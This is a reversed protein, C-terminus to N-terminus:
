ALGVRKRVAWELGLCGVVFAYLYWSSWLRVEVTRPARHRVANLRAPLDKLGDLTRFDGGTPATLRRLLEEDPTLNAMEAEFNEAVHLPYEAQGGGPESGVADPSRVRLRYEGPELGGVTGEYRGSDAAAGGGGGAVGGVPGLAQTKVVADGQLVDVALMAPYAGDAPLENLRARVRAQDGPTIVVPDADLSVGAETTAYPEDAAARVLQRFFREQDHEGGKARWRWTEDLGLFFVSGRGLRHRTLVPTGTSSEVLVPEAIEKREPMSLYRFVPPLTMWRQAVDPGSATPEEAMTLLDALSQGAGSALGAPGPLATGPMVRFAPEEGPWVRWVPGAGARVASRKWPLFEALWDGTYERPLHARGAMLIVSGGRQAVMQRLAEWQQPSLGGAPADCLIVVDLAALDTASVGLKAGPADLLVSKANIWNTRGLADRLYRYDWTPAGGVLLVEFRDTLVKVYRTASNNDATVEGDVPTLSVTVRQPGPDRMIMQFRVTGTGPRDKNPSVAAEYTQEGITVTVEPAKAGKPLAAATWRVDATVTLTEGVFVSAPVSVRQVALDRVPAGPGGPAPSVAFVPAGTGGVLASSVAAEAGVQQGDTFVVVAQVGQHRLRDLVERLGGTLDSRAGDPAVLLRRVNPGPKAGDAAGRLPVERVDPGIAFGYVPVGAPVHALLGTGPGVVAEEVLDMRNLKSLEDCARRVAENTRYLADDSETQFQNARLAVEDIVKVAQAPWQRSAPRALDKRDLQALAAALRPAKAKLKPQATVLAKTRQAWEAAADDFRKRAPPNEKGQIAAVELEVQAQAIEAVLAPLREIDPAVAAFEEARARVGPPLRGMGDAVAVWMANSRQTDRVSMSRSRDVVIVVAGQEADGLERLAVPRAISGALAVVALCRLAPLGWRWAGPVGRVQRAYMLLVGAVGLLAVLLAVGLWQPSEWRIAAALVDITYIV